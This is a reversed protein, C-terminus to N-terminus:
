SHRCKSTATTRSYSRWSQNRNFSGRACRIVYTQNNLLDRTLKQRQRYAAPCVLFFLSAELTAEGAFPHKHPSARKAPRRETSSIETRERSLTRKNIQYPWRSFPPFNSFQTFGAAISYTKRPAKIKEGFVFFRNTWLRTLSGPTTPNRLARETLARQLVVSKAIINSKAYYALASMIYPKRVVHERTVEIETSSVVISCIILSM